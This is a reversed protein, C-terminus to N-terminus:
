IIIPTQTSDLHRRYIETNSINMEGSMTNTLGTGGCKCVCNYTCACDLKVSIRKITNRNKKKLKTAM